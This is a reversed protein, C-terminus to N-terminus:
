ASTRASASARTCATCTARTSSGAATRARAANDVMERVLEIGLGRGRHEDLVYVDTLYVFRGADFEVARAFGVQGGGLDRRV